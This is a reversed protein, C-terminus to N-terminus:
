HMLMICIPSSHILLIKYSTTISTTTSSHVEREVYLPCETMASASTSVKSLIPFQKLVWYVLIIATM